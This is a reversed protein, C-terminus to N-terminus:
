GVKGTWARRPSGAPTQTGPGAYRHTQGKGAGRTQELLNGLAEERGTGTKEGLSRAPALEEQGPWLAGRSSRQPGRSGREEQHSKRLGLTNGPGEGVWGGGRGPM